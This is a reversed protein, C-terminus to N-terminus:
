GAWWAWLRCVIEASLLGGAFSVPLRWGELRTVRRYAVYLAGVVLITVLLVGIASPVLHSLVALPDAILKDEDRGAIARALAGALIRQGVLLAAAALPLQASAVPILFHALQARRGALAAAAWFCVAGLALAALVDAVALQWGPHPHALSVTAVGTVRVGQTAAVLLLAPPGVALRALGLARRLPTQRDNTQM